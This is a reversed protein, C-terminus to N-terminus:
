TKRPIDTTKYTIVKVYISRTLMPSTSHSTVMPKGLSETQVAQEEADVFSPEGDPSHYGKQAEM